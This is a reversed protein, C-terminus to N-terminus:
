AVQLHAREPDPKKQEDDDGDADDAKKETGKPAAIPLTSTVGAEAFLQIETKREAIVEELDRGREAAVMTLTKVGAAVEILDAQIDKLPDPSQFGRPQWCVTTWRKIDYDNIGRLQQNLLAMKLGERYIRDCVHVVIFGQLRAWHDQEPRLGIKSSSYTTDSYDGTLSPYSTGLGIAIMRSMLKTFEPSASNPHQPDWLSLKAGTGRLDMLAGPDASAPIQAPGADPSRTTPNAPDADEIAGMKASEIRSAVLENELYASLMDMTLMVAAGHPIGRGQGPRTPIFAHIIDEAPVRVREREMSADQPHKTWLHYAVPAGFQDYEVGRKIVPETTRNWNEDLLDADLIQIRFGMPGMAPGRYLRILIEGDPAWNGVALSLSEDFSIKKEVTCNEPRCWELWWAEIAQNAATFLKGELTKNKAQLRIGNPGIVSEVLLQSYRAGFPTNKVLERARNRLTRIDNLDQNASKSSAMWGSTFRNFAAADFSSRKAPPAILRAIAARIRYTLSTKM